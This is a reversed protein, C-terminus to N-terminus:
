RSIPDRDSDVLKYEGTSPNRLSLKVTVYERPPDSYDDSQPGVRVEVRINNALYEYVDDINM